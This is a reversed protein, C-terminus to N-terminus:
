VLKEWLCAINTSSKTRRCSACEGPVRMGGDPVRQGCSTIVRPIAHELREEQILVLSRTLVFSCLGPRRHGAHVALGRRAPIRSRREASEGLPSHSIRTQERRSNSHGIVGPPSICLPSREKNLSRSVIGAANIVPPYIPKLSKATTM